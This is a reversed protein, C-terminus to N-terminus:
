GILLQFPTSCLVVQTATLKSELVGAQKMKERGMLPEEIILDVKKQVM